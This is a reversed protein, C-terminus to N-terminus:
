TYDAKTPFLKRVGGEPDPMDGEFRPIVHLHFHDVTRGAARGENVGINFGDPNNNLFESELVDKIMTESRSDPAEALVELYRDELDLEKLKDCIREILDQLQRWESIDLDTISERHKKPVIHVHGPSVPFDDLRALLDETELIKGRQTDESCFFCDKM